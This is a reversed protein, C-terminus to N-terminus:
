YEKMFEEIIMYEKKSLCYIEYILINLENEKEAIMKKNDENYLNILENVIDIVRHLQVETPIKIPIKKVRSASIVLYGGKLSCTNFSVIYFYSILNSNLLGLLYKMNINSHTVIITSKGALYSGHNDYYCELRRNMGGIIIKETEAQEFRKRSINNLDNNPIVPNKYSDKIYKTTKYGWQSLYRDIIGTNILKKYNSIDLLNDYERIYKKIEYAENVTAASCINAINKLESNRKIKEIICHAETDINQFYKDWHIDKYFINSKIIKSHKIHMESEMIEVLIDQKEESKQLLFTIPYVDADKFVEITSYDRLQIIKYNVLLERLSETYDAGILKNPIVYSIMGGKKLVNLGQEIFVVFMDWNGKATKFKMKCAKRIDPLNKSMNESDLYPPNGIVIDFGGSDIIDKFEKEWNFANKGAITECDILSDGCKINNDLTTLTSYENATKLWLSLKTIEVSEKNLDVGYINNILIKKNLEFLTIQNNEDKLKSIIKNVRKCEKYLYEFAKSLFAGSGCSIDIVKINSLVDLYKRWFVLHEKIANKYNRSKKSTGEPINPLDEEGLKKRKFQLWNGICRDVMYSTIYEPTYYIGSKKRSSVDVSVSTALGKFDKKINEIDIISKEFIHGLINVNLESEFDYKNFFELKSLISDPISFSNLVKDEKFLGGNFRNIRMPPNGEDISNFLDKLNSWIKDQSTSYSLRSAEFITNLTNHPLLGKVQCFCIFIVRDLIKQVIEVLLLKDFNKNNQILWELILMRLDKYDNYFSESIKRKDEENKLFLNDVISKTNKSILNERSFLYYFKLFKEENLLENIFFQEYNLSNSSNYLRIEIFNSVIVWNCKTGYKHAYNFAQEIPTLRNKRSIQKNDLDTTAKKLEVVVRIYKKNESFFGLVADPKTNDLLTHVEENINWELNGSTLDEYGLLKVFFNNIFSSRITSENATYIRGNDIIDKWKRIIDIKSNIDKIYFNEKTRNSLIKPNFISSNIQM